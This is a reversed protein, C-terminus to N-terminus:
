FKFRPLFIELIKLDNKPQQQLKYCEILRRDNIFARSEGLMQPIFFGLCVQMIDKHTASLQCSLRTAKLPVDGM